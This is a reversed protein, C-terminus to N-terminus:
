RGGAFYHSLDRMLVDLYIYNVVMPLPDDNHRVLAKFDHREQGHDGPMSYVELRHMEGPVSEVKLSALWREQLSEPDPPDMDREEYRIDTFYSFLLRVSLDDLRGSPLTSDPQLLCCSFSGGDERTFRFPRRDRKVVEVMSVDSPRLDILLHQRYHNGSSSFVRDLDLDEYGPLEVSFFAESAEPRLLFREGSVHVDYQLLIRDGRRFSVTRATGPDWEGSGTYISRIQLREAAYFLNGVAVPNVAEEGYLFWSDGRRVLDTSDYPDWLIVRDTGARGHLLIKRGQKKLGGWPGALVVLLVAALLLFLVIGTSRRKKM